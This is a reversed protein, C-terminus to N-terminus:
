EAAQQTPARLDSPLIKALRAMGKPTVRVQEAIVRRGGPQPIERTHITLDGNDLHSQYPVWSAGGTRKYIWGRAALWAIFAKPQAGLGKAADTLSLSGSAGSLRNLAEAAPQLEAIKSKQREVTAM